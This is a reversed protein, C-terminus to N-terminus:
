WPPWQGRISSRSSKILKAVHPVFATEPKPLIRLWTVLVDKWALSVTAYGIGAILLVVAVLGALEKGGHLWLMVGLIGFAIALFALM